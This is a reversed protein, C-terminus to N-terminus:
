AWALSPGVDTKEKVPQRQRADVPLLSGCGFVAREESVFWAARLSNEHLYVSNIEM